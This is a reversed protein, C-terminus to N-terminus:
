FNTVTITLEPLNSKRVNIM